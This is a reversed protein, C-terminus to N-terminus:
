GVRVGVFPTRSVRRLTLRYHTPPISIGNPHADSGFKFPGLFQAHPGGDLRESNWDYATRSIQRWTLGSDWSVEAEVLVTGSTFRADDLEWYLLDHGAPWPQM